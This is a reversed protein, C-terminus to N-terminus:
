RRDGTPETLHVFLDQLALPGLDLGAAQAEARRADDLSGYVMASKTRGLSKEGLVRMGAVFRDVAEIDGTVASGAGRLSEAHEHLLLRGEDLILVEEFLSSVEEILHTSVIMTRPHAMAEALLADYFKYRSPADLGLYTEDFMTVPTRSALGIVIGLASRKGHSLAGPTKDLPVSFLDALEAAYDADWSERLHGAYRLLDKVKVGSVAADGAGRVLCLQSTVDANEFVQQGGVTITGGSPQRYGALLSLLSTKGSGNRGLLGYIKGGTLTFSVEDLATVDPYRLSLRDAEIITSM